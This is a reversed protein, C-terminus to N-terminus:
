LAERRATGLSSQAGKTPSLSSVFHLAHPNM